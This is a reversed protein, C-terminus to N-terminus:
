DRCNGRFGDMEPMQVDMLVLDSPGAQLATLAEMGNGAVTVANRWGNLAAWNEGTEARPYSGGAGRRCRLVPFDIRVPTQNCPTCANWGWRSTITPVGRGNELRIFGKREEFMWHPPKM